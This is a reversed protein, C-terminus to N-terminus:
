LKDIAREKRQFFENESNDEEEDLYKGFGELLIAMVLGYTVFNVIYMMSYSYALGFYKNQDVGMYLVGYWDDNTM